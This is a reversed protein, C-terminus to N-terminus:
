NGSSGGNNRIYVLAKFNAGTDEGRRRSEVLGDVSSGSEHNM